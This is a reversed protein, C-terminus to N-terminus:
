CLRKAVGYIGCSSRTKNDLRGHPQPRMYYIALKPGSVTICGDTLMNMWGDMHGYTWEDKHTDASGRPQWSGLWWSRPLCCALSFSELTSVLSTAGRISRRTWRRMASQLPPINDCECTYSACRRHRLTLITSAPWKARSDEATEMVM